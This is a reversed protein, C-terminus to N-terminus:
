APNGWPSVAAWPSLFERTLAPHLSPTMLHQIRAIGRGLGPLWDAQGPALSSHPGSSMEWANPAPTCPPVRKFSSAMPLWFCPSSTSCGEPGARSFVFLCVFLCVGEPDQKWTHNQLDQIFPWRAKSNKPHSSTWASPHSPFRFRSETEWPHLQHSGQETFSPTCFV